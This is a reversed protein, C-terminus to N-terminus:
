KLNLKFQDVKLTSSLNSDHFSAGNSGVLERDFQCHKSYALVAQRAPGHNQPQIKGRRPRQYFGVAVELKPRM